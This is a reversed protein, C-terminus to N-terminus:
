KVEEYEIINKYWSLFPVRYGIVTFKYTKGIEIANYFDSSNWKGRLLSDDNEFVGKDTFILYTNDGGKRVSEKDKVTATVETDNFSGACSVTCGGLVAFLILVAVFKEM